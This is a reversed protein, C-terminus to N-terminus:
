HSDREGACSGFSCLSIAQFSPASTNGQVKVFATKILAFPHCAEDQSRLFFTNAVDTNQPSISQNSRHQRKALCM